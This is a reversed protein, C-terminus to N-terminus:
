GTLAKLQASFTTSAAPCGVGPGFLNQLSSISTQIRTIQSAKSNDTPFPALVAPNHIDHGAAVNASLSAIFSARSPPCSCPIKIGNIGTCDGTGTPNVGPSVGFQPVLTADVGKAAPAPKAAPKPAPKPAPKAAPKPAPKSAPKAAHKPAPKAAPKPAPKAAPKPAPKAAPKPAAPAPTGNQLAAIQALFTTASAPCGVGPGHLNQLATISTQLRVIQSATSGDTPFPSLVSPNNINHGAAVDASLSQIFSNRDPPCSCPIKIGNVGDCDGTGTPNTGAVIGFQPVLNPDVGRKEVPLASVGLALLTSVLTSTFKM